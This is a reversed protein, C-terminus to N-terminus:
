KAAEKNDYNMGAEIKRSTQSISFCLIFYIVSLFLLVQPSDGLYKPNAAIATSIGVLDLLGIISILSTDKVMGTLSNVLIPIINKIVQPLIILVLSQFKNFNMAYAAEYQTKPLGQFGGRISEAMYASHFLIIGSMARILVGPTVSSPLALPLVLYGLFLLTILPVGRITEIVGISFYKIVPLESRRGLALMLGIIFSFIISTISILMSLLLGGWYNTKVIPLIGESSTFGSIFLYMFPLFLVWGIIIVTKSKEGAIYRAFLYGFIQLISLIILWIRSGSSFNLFAFSGPIIILFLATGTIGKKLLSYSVGALFAAVGLIVWIRWLEGVPYSGTLILKLNRPIVEWSVSSFWLIMSKTIKFLFFSVFITIITNYWTNLLNNNIWEFYKNKM